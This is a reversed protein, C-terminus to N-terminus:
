ASLAGKRKTPARMRLMRGPRGRGLDPAMARLPAAAEKMRAALNMLRERRALFAAHLTRCDTELTGLIDSLARTLRVDSGAVAAVAQVHSQLIQLDHLQVLKV